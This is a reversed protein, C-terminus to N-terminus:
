TPSVLMSATIEAWGTQYQEAFASWSAALRSLEETSTFPMVLPVRHTAPAAVEVVPLPWTRVRWGGTGHRDEGFSEGTWAVIVDDMGYCESSQVLLPGPTELLRRIRQVLLRDGDSIRVNLQRTVASVGGQFVHPHRSGMVPTVSGVGDVTRGEPHLLEVGSGLLVSLGPASLHKIWASGPRLAPVDISVASTRVMSRGVVSLAYTTRGGPQVRLDLAHGEWTGDRSACMALPDGTAVRRWGSGDNAELVFPGVHPPMITQYRVAVAPFGGAHLQLTMLGDASSVPELSM